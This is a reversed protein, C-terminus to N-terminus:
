LRLPQSEKVGFISTMTSGDISGFMPMNGERMYPGVAGAQPNFGFLV